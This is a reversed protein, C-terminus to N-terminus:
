LLVGLEPRPCLKTVGSWLVPGCWARIERSPVILLYILTTKLVLSHLKKYLLLRSICLSLQALSLCM